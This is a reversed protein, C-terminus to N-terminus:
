ETAPPHIGSIYMIAAELTYESYSCSFNSKFYLLFNCCKFLREFLELVISSITTQSLQPLISIEPLKKIVLEHGIRLHNYNSNTFILLLLTTSGITKKLSDLILIILILSLLEIISYCFLRTFWYGFYFILQRPQKSLNTSQMARQRRKHKLHLQLFKSLYFHHFLSSLSLLLKLMCEDRWWMSWDRAAWTGLWCLAQGDM